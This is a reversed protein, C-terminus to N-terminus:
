LMRHVTDINNPGLVSVVEDSDRGIAFHTGPAQVHEGGWLHTGERRCMAAQQKWSWGAYSCTEWLGLPRGKM